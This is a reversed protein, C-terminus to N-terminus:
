AQDALSEFLRRVDHPQCLDTGPTMVAAAGAALGFRFAQEPDQGLALAHVMAALFSDGAGVASRTEVPIAPLRLPGSLSALLAGNDGMTVAVYQAQGREVIAMAAQAIAQESALPEGVLARLEGLSPKVLLVDGGALGEALAPGSTDLVFRMGNKKAIAAVRAYFDVPVGHPLSGSAVLYDHNAQELKQLCERWEAEAVEPGAPVFRYEQGSGREHVSTSVRTHGVIKTPTRVLQHLDLLGDLAVGTAGGSLYYCRANGGLRVFVRAVNIGGGGPDYQEDSARMKRLPLVRDVAYSVDLTPNMTLTALDMM